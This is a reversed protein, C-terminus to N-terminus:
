RKERSASCDDSADTEENIVVSTSTGTAPTAPSGNIASGESDDNITTITEAAKEARVREIWALLKPRNGDGDPDWQDTM